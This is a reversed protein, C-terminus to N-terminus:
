DTTNLREVRTGSFVTQLASKLVAVQEPVADSGRPLEALFRSGGFFEVFEPKVVVELSAPCLVVKEIADSREYEAQDTHFGIGEEVSAHDDDDLRTIIMFNAPAQADDGLAVVLVNDEEYCKITSAFFRKM